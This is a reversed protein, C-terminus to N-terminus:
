EEYIGSLLGTLWRNPSTQGTLCDFFSVNNLYQKPRKLPLQTM